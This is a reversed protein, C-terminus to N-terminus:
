NSKLFGLVNDTVHLLGWLPLGIMTIGAWFAFLAIPIPHPLETIPFGVANLGIALLFSLFGFVIVSRLLRRPSRFPGAPDNWDWSDDDTSNEDASQNDGSVHDGCNPCYRASDTLEEGCVPCYRDPM